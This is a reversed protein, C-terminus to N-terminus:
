RCCPWRSFGNLLILMERKPYRRPSRLRTAGFSLLGAAPPSQPTAAFLVFAFMLVRPGIRM